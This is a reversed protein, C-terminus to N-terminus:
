RISLMEAGDHSRLDRGVYAPTSLVALRQKNGGAGTHISDFHLHPSHTRSESFGLARGPPDNASWPTGPTRGRFSASCYWFSWSAAADASISSKRQQSSAEWSPANQSLDKAADSDLAYGLLEDCSWLVRNAAVLQSILVKPALCTEVSSELSFSRNTRLSNVRLSSAIKCAATCHPVGSARRSQPSLLIKWLGSQCSRRKGCAM